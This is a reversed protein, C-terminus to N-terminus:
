TGADDKGQVKRLKVFLQQYYENTYNTSRTNFSDLLEKTWFTKNKHKSKQKQQKKVM